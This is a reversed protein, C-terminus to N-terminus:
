WSLGGTLSAAGELRGAWYPRVRWGKVHGLLGFGDNPQVVRRGLQGGRVIPRDLPVVGPFAISEEVGLGVPPVNKAVCLCKVLGQVLKGRGFTVYDVETHVGGLLPWFSM